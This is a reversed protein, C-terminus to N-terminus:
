QVQFENLGHPQSALSLLRGRGMLTLAVTYFVATDAKIPEPCRFEM